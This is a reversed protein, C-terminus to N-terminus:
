LMIESQCGLRPFPADFVSVSVQELSAPRYLSENGFKSSDCLFVSRKAYKLMLQRIYNEEANPDSIVGGPNYVCIKIQMLTEIVVSVLRYRRITLM